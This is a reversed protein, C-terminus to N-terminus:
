TIIVFTQWYQLHHYVNTQHHRHLKDLFFCWCNLFFFFCYFSIIWGSSWWHFMQDFLISKFFFYYNRTNKKVSLLYQYQKRNKYHCAQMFKWKLAFDFSKKIGNLSLFHFKINTLRVFIFCLVLIYQFCDTKFRM